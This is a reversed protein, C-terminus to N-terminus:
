DSTSISKAKVFEPFIIKDVSESKENNLFLSGDGFEFVSGGGM